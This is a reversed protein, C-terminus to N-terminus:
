GRLTVFIGAVILGISAVIDATVSGGFIATALLFGGVPTLAMVQGAIGAPLVALIRNWLFYGLATTVVWNYVLVAVLRGTWHIPGALAGTMALAAVAPVSVALQWWTQAWFGSRWARRRYLISGLGWAIAAFLLMANGALARPSGWDVLAPNMFLLLGAFGVAAGLLQRRGLRQPELWLELPIAWLPMTYALVIARGAPLIALGIISGILFGAIQLQGVWFLGLREGREPLLPTRAMLMAPSLLAITGALRLLVFTFPPADGLALKMLPWNGAWSIVVIALYLYVVRSSGRPAAAAEDAAESRNSAM